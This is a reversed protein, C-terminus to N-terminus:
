LAYRFEGLLTSPTDGHATVKISTCLSRGGVESVQTSHRDRAASVGVRIAAAREGAGTKEERYNSDLKDDGALRSASLFCCLAVLRIGAPSTDFTSQSESERGWPRTLLTM